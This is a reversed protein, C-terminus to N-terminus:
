GQHISKYYGCNSNRSTYFAKMINRTIGAEHCIQLDNKGERIRRIIEGTIGKEDDVKEIKCTNKNVCSECLM